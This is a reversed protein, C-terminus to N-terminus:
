RNDDTDVEETELPNEPTSVPRATETADAVAEDPSSGAADDPVAGTAAGPPPAPIYDSQWDDQAAGSVFRKAAYGAAGVAAALVGLKLLRRSRKKKKKKKKSQPALEAAKAEALDRALEAKDAVVAAGSAIVPVARARYDAIVPAAKDRADVFAPKATSEVFDKAAGRASGVATEVQPRVVEVYDAAQDFLSKKELGM